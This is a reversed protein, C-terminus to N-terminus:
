PTADELVGGALFGSIVDVVDQTTAAIMESSRSSTFGNLPDTTSVSGTVVYGNTVQRVALSRLETPPTSAM